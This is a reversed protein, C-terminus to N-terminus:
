GAGSLLALAKAHLAPDGAACVRGGQDAPGGEWNTVVGGAAEIVAIPAQIDYASLDAEIVLDGQGAALLAYAHCDAGYREIRVQDAVRRFAATEAGPAFLAPTTAFLTAADLGPRRRVALPRAGNRDYCIAGRRGTAPERWGVYREGLAPHDIVGLIPREGDNLAILVGWLPVGALFARTGDIPDLVWLRGSAGEARGFEEGFVGDEPCAEALIARMAQEADRDAATVPDFADRGGGADRKDEATLDASRFLPLTRARAADALRHAVSLARALEPPPDTPAPFSM